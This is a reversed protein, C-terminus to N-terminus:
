RDLRIRYAQIRSATVRGRALLDSAEAAEDLVDEYHRTRRVQHWSAVVTLTAFVVSVALITAGSVATASRGLLPEIHVVFQLGASSLVAAISAAATWLRVGSAM